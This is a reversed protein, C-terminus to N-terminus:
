CGQREFAENWALPLRKAQFTKSLFKEIFEEDTSALCKDHYTAFYPNTLARERILAIPEELCNGLSIHVFPCALVDAYPTIYLIEKVAGCGHGGLNAQFDTRLYCFKQLLEDIYLLDDRTLLIQRQGEWRGAPVPLILYLLVNLQQALDVLGQVGKSRLTQHTVVCGLTVRLGNKLALYLGDMTKKFSGEAGRFADHEQAISSDLSITLIDVGIKKLEIIKKKNLLTGNTTVSIVNRSPEFAGIIEALNDLLLPEGGQFSFNVAGLKMCQLAINRYDEVSLKKRAPDKLSEAFCHRCKLNCAFDLACDVYRLPVRGLLYSQVVTKILRGVLKPKHPRFAYKMNIFFENWKGM